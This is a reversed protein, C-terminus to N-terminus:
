PIPADINMAYLPNLKVNQTKSVMAWLFLGSKVLFDLDTDRLGGFENYGVGHVIKHREEDLKGIREPDFVFGGGVPAFDRPPKSV